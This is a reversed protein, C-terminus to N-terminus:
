TLFYPAEITFDSVSIVSLRLWFLDVIIM